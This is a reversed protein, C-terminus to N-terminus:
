TCCLLTHCQVTCVNQKSNSKRSTRVLRFLESKSLIGVLSPVTGNNVVYVKTQADYAHLSILVSMERMFYFQESAHSPSTRPFPSVTGSM